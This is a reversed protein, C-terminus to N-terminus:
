AGAGAVGSAVDSVMTSGVPAVRIRVALWSPESGRCLPRASTCTWAHGHV